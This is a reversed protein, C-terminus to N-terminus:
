LNVIDHFTLSIKYIIVNTVHHSTLWRLQSWIAYFMDFFHFRAIERNVKSIHHFIM